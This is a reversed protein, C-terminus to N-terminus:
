LGVYEVGKFCGVSTFTGFGHIFCRLIGFVRSWSCSFAVGRCRDFIMGAFVSYGLGEFFSVLFVEIGAFICVSTYELGPAWNGSGHPHVFFFLFFFCLSLSIKM